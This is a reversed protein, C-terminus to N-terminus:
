SVVEAAILAVTRTANALAWVWMRGNWKSGLIDYSGDRDNKLITDTNEPWFYLVERNRKM